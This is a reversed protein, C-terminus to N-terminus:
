AISRFIAIADLNCQQTTDAGWATSGQNWVQAALAISAGPTIVRQASATMSQYYAGSADGDPAFGSTAAGGQVGDILVKLSAFQISAETNLLSCNATVLVVAEDAWAPTPISLTARTTPTTPVTFNTTSVGNGGFAVSASAFSPDNPPTVRGVIFWTSGQGLLGVVHGAKLAIAESTNLIPVDTLTGGALDVTNQGTSANWTLITGQRFRVGPQGTDFLSALNDSIM